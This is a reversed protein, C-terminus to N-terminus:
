SFDSKLYNFMFGFGFGSKFDFKFNLLSSLTLNFMSNLRFDFGM